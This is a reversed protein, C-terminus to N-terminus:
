RASTLSIDTWRKEQSEYLEVTTPASSLIAPVALRTYKKIPMATTTRASSVSWWERCVSRRNTLRYIGGNYTMAVTWASKKKMLVSKKTIRQMDYNVLGSVDERTGSANLVSVCFIEPGHKILISDEKLKSTKAIM